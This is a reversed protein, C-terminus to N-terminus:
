QWLSLINSHQHQVQGSLGGQYIGTSQAFKQDFPYSRKDSRSFAMPFKPINSTKMAYWTVIQTM